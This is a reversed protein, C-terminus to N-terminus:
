VKKGSHAGKFIDRREVKEVSDIKRNSKGDGKITKSSKEENFKDVVSKEKLSNEIIELNRYAANNKNMSLMKRQKENIYHQIGANQVSLKCGYLIKTEDIEVKRVVLGMLSYTTGGDAFVLRIPMNVVKDINESTVFSFGTESIDKVIVDLAKRNIGIQAVGKVGIFLRFAERRNMEYGEGGAIIKYYSKGKNLVVTIGVSKWVMPSKDQRINILSVKINGSTGFSLIKDNIRVPETLIFGNERILVTSPFEYKQGNMNLELIIKSNEPLNHLLM